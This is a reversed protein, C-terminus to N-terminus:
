SEKEREVRQKSDVKAETQAKAENHTKREYNCADGIVGSPIDNSNLPITLLNASVPGINHKVGAEDMIKCFLAYGLVALIQAM